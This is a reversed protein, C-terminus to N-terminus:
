ISKSYFEPEFVGRARNRDHRQASPEESLYRTTKHWLPSIELMSESLRFYESDYAGNIENEGAYECEDSLFSSPPLRPPCFSPTALVCSASDDNGRAFKKAEGLAAAAEIQQDLAVASATLGTSFFHRHSSLLSGVITEKIAQLYGHRDIKKFSVVRIMGLLCQKLEWSPTAKLIMEGELMPKSPRPFCVSFLLLNFVQWSSPVLFRLAEKLTPLYNELGHASMDNRWPANYFISNERTEEFFALDLNAGPKLRAQVVHNYSEEDAALLANLCSFFQLRYKAPMERPTDRILSKLAGTNDSSDNDTGDRM